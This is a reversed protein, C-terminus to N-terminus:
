AAFSFSAKKKKVGNAINDQYTTSGAMPLGRRVFVPMLDKENLPSM